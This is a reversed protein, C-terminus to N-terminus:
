IYLPSSPILYFAAPRPAALALARFRVEVKLRSTCAVMDRDAAGVVSGAIVCIEAAGVMDELM